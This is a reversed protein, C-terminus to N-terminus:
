TEFYKKRRLTTGDKRANAALKADAIKKDGESKATIKDAKGAKTAAIIENESKTTNEVYSKKAALYTEENKMDKESKKGVVLYFLEYFFMIMLVSAIIGFAPEIYLVVDVAM